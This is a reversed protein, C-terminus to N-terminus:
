AQYQDPDRPKIIGLRVAVSAVNARVEEQVLNFSMALLAIGFLLYLSCLAISHVAESEGRQGEEKATVSPARYLDSQRSGWAGRGRECEYVASRARRERERGGHDMRYGEVDRQYYESKGRDRRRNARIRPLDFEFDESDPDYCAEDRYVDKERGYKNTEEAARRERYNEFDVDRLDHMEYLDKQDEIDYYKHNDFDRRPGFETKPKSPRPLSKSRTELKSTPKNQYPELDKLAAELDQLPLSIKPFSEENQFEDRPRRDSVNYYREDDFDRYGHARSFPPPQTKSRSAAPLTASALPRERPRRPRGTNHGSDRYIRTIYVSDM